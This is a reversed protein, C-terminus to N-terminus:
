GTARQGTADSDPGARQEPAPDSGVLRPAEDTSPPATPALLSARALRDLTREANEPRGYLYGQGKLQGMQRLITLVQDNEIGEATIPLEFGRGLSVIAEVIKANAGEHALETVFSRDIKLRDFPLSRLQALSSYGTGFDDLSIQIGQNKLSAVVSRVVGINEHLCSETIEIDLRQPPFGSEHLMRLLKQSFWPDRLQLPSINISLSLRPDWQKADQLAQRILNESLEGILGIDEAIPIFIEPSVLGFQPSNWRALMEFGVLDGSALDIQQEYFPVFEGRSIGARIGTELENRFRLESEMTPEFWAYGNRGRKKAHYMAIDAHHLLLQACDEPNAANPTEITRAIGISMTVEISKGECAVPAGVARNLADALLDLKDPTRREYPIVCAFEDGGLRAVVGGMPVLASIRRATETLVYDGVKHGYIDNIQKFNDIDVMLVAVGLHTDAVETVIRASAPLFSRRNLLGTLADTEALLRANEEAKRRERIERTLETYRRWGFVILAINLLLASSLAADPNAGNGLLAGVAQPLGAGGAGVFLIVAAVAIGLAVIDREARGLREPGHRDRATENSSSM